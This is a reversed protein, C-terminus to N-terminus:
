SALVFFTSTRKRRRVFRLVLLHSRGSITAEYDAANLLRVESFGRQWIESKFELERAARYSFGGKILQMAREITIEPGVTLLVHLHDPMVVFEHLLFKRERLYHYLVDILL